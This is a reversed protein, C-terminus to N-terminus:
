ENEGGDDGGFDSMFVFVLSLSSSALSSSTCLFTATATTTSFHQVPDPSEPSSPTQQKNSPLHIPFDEVSAGSQWALSKRRSKGGEKVMEARLWWLVVPM